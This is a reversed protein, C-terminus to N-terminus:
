GVKKPDLEATKVLESDFYSRVWYWFPLGRCFRRLWPAKYGHTSPCKDVDFFMNLWYVSLFARYFPSAAYFLYIFLTYSYLMELPPFLIAM